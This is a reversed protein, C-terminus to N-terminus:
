WYHLYFVFVIKFNISAVSERWISESRQKTVTVNEIFQFVLLPSQFTLCSHAIPYIWLINLKIGHIIYDFWSMYSDFNFKLISTCEVEFNNVYASLKDNFDFKRQALNLILTNRRLHCYIEYSKVHTTRAHSIVVVQMIEQFPLRELNLCRVNCYLLLFSNLLLLFQIGLTILHSWSIM